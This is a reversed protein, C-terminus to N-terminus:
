YNARSTQKGNSYLKVVTIIKIPKLLQQYNNEIASTLIFISKKVM